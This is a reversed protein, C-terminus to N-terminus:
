SITCFHACLNLKGWGNALNGAGTFQPNSLNKIAINAARIGRYMNGWEHSYNVWGNDAPNTRSETITTIGRGTHTFMAEDSLSALMQEDFGGQGFWSYVNVVFRESLVPDTWVAAESVQDLPQTNVFDDNCGTHTFALGGLLLMTKIYKNM